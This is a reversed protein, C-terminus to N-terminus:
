ISNMVIRIFLVWNHYHVRLMKVQSCFFCTLFIHSLSTVKEQMRLAKKFYKIATDYDGKREAYLLGITHFIRASEPVLRLYIELARDVEGREIFKEARTEEDVDEEATVSLRCYLLTHGKDIPVLMKTNDAASIGHM